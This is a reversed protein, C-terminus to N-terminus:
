RTKSKIHHYERAQANLETLARWTDLALVDAERVPDGKTLARIQANMNDEPSPTRRGFIEDKEITSESLFDPFKRALLNKLAAFWLIVMVGYEHRIKKSFGPYLIRFLTDLLDPDRTTLFGLYLNDAALYTEFAIGRFDARLAQVGRIKEPRVPADPIDLIWDAAPLIEAIQVPSLHIIDKGHRVLAAGDGKYAIVKLGSFHLIALTRAETNDYASRILSCLWLLQSDTLQSWATPITLDLNITDSSTAM